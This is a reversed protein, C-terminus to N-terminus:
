RTAVKSSDWPSKGALLNTIPAELERYTPPQPFRWGNLLITPTGRVGIDEGVKLGQKVRPLEETQANCTNFEALDAVGAERAYASWPKLGFSDQKAYLLARMADFRGQLHACEAVRAAPLAFRHNALPFHIYVVAVETSFAKRVAILTSDARKCFPCEFDIFEVVTIQANPSGVRIGASLLDQWDSVLQPVGVPQGSQSAPRIERRFFIVVMVAAVITLAVTIIRDILTGM